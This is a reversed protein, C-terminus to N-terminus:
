AAVFAGLEAFVDPHREAARGLKLRVHDEAGGLGYARDVKTPATELEAAGADISMGVFDIFDGAIVLRWRDAPPAARRYHALLEALDRDIATSRPVGPGGDNLDSALHVDSFVLLSERPTAVARPRIDTSSSRGVSSPYGVDSSFETLQEDDRQVLRERSQSIM